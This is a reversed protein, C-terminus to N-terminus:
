ATSFGRRFLAIVLIGTIVVMISQVTKGNLM